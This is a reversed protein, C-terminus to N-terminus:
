LSLFLKVTQGCPYMCRLMEILQPLNNTYTFLIGRPECRRRLQFTTFLEIKCGHAVRLPLRQDLGSGACVRLGKQGRIRLIEGGEPVRLVKHTSRFEALVFARLYSGLDIDLIFM